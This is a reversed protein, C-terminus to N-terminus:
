FHHYFEHVFKGVAGLRLDLGGHYRSHRSLIGLGRTGACLWGVCWWLKHAPRTVLRRGARVAQGCVVFEVGLLHPLSLLPLQQPRWQAELALLLPALIHLLVSM